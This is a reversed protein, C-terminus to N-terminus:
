QRDAFRREASGIPHIPLARLSGLALEMLPRDSSLGLRTSRHTLRRQQFMRIVMSIWLSLRHERHLQGIPCRSLIRRNLQRALHQAHVRSRFPQAVSLTQITIWPIRTPVTHSQCRQLHKTRLGIVRALVSARRDILEALRITRRKQLHKGPILMSRHRRDKSSRHFTVFLRHFRCTASYSIM